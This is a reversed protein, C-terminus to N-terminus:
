PRFALTDGIVRVLESQRRTGTKSFIIKLYQRASSEAINLGQAAEKVSYGSMMMVALRAQAPSLGFSMRLVSEDEDGHRQANPISIIALGGPAAQGILVPKAMSVILTLPADGGNAGLVLTHAASTKTSSPDLVAHLAAHLQDDDDGISLRQKSISIGRGAALLQKAASNMEIVHGRRDVILVSHPLRDLIIQPAFRQASQRAITQQITLARSLHPVIDRLLGCDATDFANKSANRVLGLYRTIGQQEPLSVVLSFEVDLPKLAEAYIRSQHLRQESVIERCHQPVLSNGRFAPLRPDEAMLSTYRGISIADWNLPRHIVCDLSGKAHEIESLYANDANFITAASALFEQWGGPDLAAAYLQEIAALFHEQRKESRLSSSM